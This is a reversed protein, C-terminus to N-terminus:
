ENPPRRRPKANVLMARMKALESERPVGLEPAEDASSARSPRRAANRHAQRQEALVQDVTKTTGYQMQAVAIERWEFPNM